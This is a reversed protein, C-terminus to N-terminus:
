VELHALKQLTTMSADHDFGCAEMVEDIKAELAALPVHQQQAAATGEAAGAAAATGATAPRAENPRDQGQSM